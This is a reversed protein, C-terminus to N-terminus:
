AGCDLLAHREPAPQWDQWSITHDQCYANNNGQQTRGSEDGFLIMPIGSVSATDRASQTKQRERLLVIGPDDSEGQARMLREVTCRAVVQGERGLQRWLKRAGYVRMLSPHM